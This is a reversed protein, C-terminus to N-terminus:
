LAGASCVVGINVATPGGLPNPTIEVKAGLQIKSSFLSGYPVCCVVYSELSYSPVLLADAYKGEALNRAVHFIEGSEVPTQVEVTAGAKVTVRNFYGGAWVEQIERSFLIVEGTADALVDRFQSQPMLTGTLTVPLNLTYYDPNTVPILRPIQVSASLAGNYHMPSTDADWYNVYTGYPIVSFTIGASEYPSAGLRETYALTAAGTVGYVTYRHSFDNLLEPMVSVGAAWNRSGLYWQTSVLLNNYLKSAPKLKSGTILSLLMEEFNLDIKSRYYQSFASWHIRGMDGSVNLNLTVQDVIPFYGVGAMFWFSEAPDSSLWSLGIGPLLAVSNINPEYPYLELPVIKGHDLYGLPNYRTVPFTLTDPGTATLSKESVPVTTLATATRPLVDDYVLQMGDTKKSIAALKGSPTVVPEYLGGSVVAEDTAISMAYGQELRQVTIEASQPVSDAMTRGAVTLTMATGTSDTAKLYRPLVNDPFAAQYQVSGAAPGSVAYLAIMWNGYEKILLAATGDPGQTVAYPEVNVPFQLEMVQGTGDISSVSLVSTYGKTKLGAILTKGTGDQLFGSVRMDDFSAITKGSERSIVRTRYRNELNPSLDSIAYWNGDFSVTCHNVTSSIHQWTQPKGYTGDALLPYFLLKKQTLDCLALGPNDGGVATLNSIKRLPEQVGTVSATFGDAFTFEPITAYFEDWVDSLTRGYVSKFVGETFRFKFHNSKQWFLVYKENGYTDLIYRTFAGGFYYAWNGISPADRTGGAEQWRTGQDDAKAQVITHLVYGNQLRGNQAESEKAVAGGESIGQNINFVSSLYLKRQLFQMLKNSAPDTMTLTVHHILEHYVVSRLTDDFASLDLIDPTADYICIHDYPENVWYANTNQTAGSVVVCLQDKPEIGLDHNAQRYVDDIFSALRVATPEQADEYIIEFWETHIVHAKWPHLLESAFSASCFLVSLLLLAVCKRIRFNM